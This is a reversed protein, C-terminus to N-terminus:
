NGPNLPENKDYILTWTKGRDSSRYVGNLTTDNYQQFLVPNLPRQATTGGSWLTTIANYTQNLFTVLDLGPM